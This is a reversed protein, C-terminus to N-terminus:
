DEEFYSHTPEPVDAFFFIADEDVFRALAERPTPLREDGEATVVPKLSLFEEFSTTWGIVAHTLMITKEIVDDIPVDPNKRAFEDLSILAELSWDRAARYRPVYNIADACLKRIAGSRTGIRNSFRFDDILRLEDESMMIPIRNDRPKKGM